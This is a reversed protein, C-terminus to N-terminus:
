EAPENKVIYFLGDGASNSSKHAVYFVCPFKTDFQPVLHQYTISM